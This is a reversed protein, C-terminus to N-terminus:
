ILKNAMIITIAYEKFKVYRSKSNIIEEKIDASNYNKKKGYRDTTTFGLESLKDIVGTYKLYKLYLKLIIDSKTDNEKITLGEKNINKVIKKAKTLIKIDNEIEEKTINYNEEYYSKIIEINEVETNLKVGGL